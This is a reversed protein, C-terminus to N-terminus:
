YAGDKWNSTLTDILHTNQAYLNPIIRETPRVPQDPQQQFDEGSNEESGVQEDGLIARQQVMSVVSLGGDFFFPMSAAIFAVLSLLSVPNTVVSVILLASLLLSM